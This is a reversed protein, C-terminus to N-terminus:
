KIAGLLERQNKQGRQQQLFLLLYFVVCILVFTILSLLGASTDPAAAEEAQAWAQSVFNM